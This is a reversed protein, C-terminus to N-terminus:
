ATSIQSSGNGPLEILSNACDSLTANYEKATSLIHILPRHFYKAFIYMTAVIYHPQLADHAGM